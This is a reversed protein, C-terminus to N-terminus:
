YAHNIEKIIQNFEALKSAQITITGNKFLFGDVQTLEKLKALEAPSVKM